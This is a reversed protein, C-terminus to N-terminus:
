LLAPAPTFSAKIFLLTADAVPLQETLVGFHTSMWVQTIVQEALDLYHASARSNQKVHYHAQRPQAHPDNDDAVRRGYAEDLRCGGTV